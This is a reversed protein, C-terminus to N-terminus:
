VPNNLPNVRCPWVAGKFLNIFFLKDVSMFVKRMYGEGKLNVRKLAAGLYIMASIKVSVLLVPLM